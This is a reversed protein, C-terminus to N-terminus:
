QDVTCPVHQPQVTFSCDPIVFCVPAIECKADFCVFCVAM